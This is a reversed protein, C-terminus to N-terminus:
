VQPWILKFYVARVGDELEEKESYFVRCQAVAEDVSKARPIALSFGIKEFM